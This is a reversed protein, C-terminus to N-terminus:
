LTWPFHCLTGCLVRSFKYCDNVRTGLSNVKLIIGLLYVVPPCAEACQQLAHWEEHFSTTRTGKVTKMVRLIVAELDVTFLKKMLNQVVDHDHPDHSSCLFLFSEVINLVGGWRVLQFMSGDTACTSPIPNKSNLLTHQSTPVPVVQKCSTGSRVPWDFSVIIGAENKEPPGNQPNGVKAFQYYM